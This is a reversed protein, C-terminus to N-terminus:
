NWLEEDEDRKLIFEIPTEGGWYNTLIDTDIDQRCLVELLIDAMSEVLALKREEVIENM